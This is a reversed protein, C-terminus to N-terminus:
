REQDEEKGRALQRAIYRCARDFTDQEWMVVSAVESRHLIISELLKEEWSGEVIEIKM